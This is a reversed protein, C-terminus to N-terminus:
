ILLVVSYRNHAHTIRIRGGNISVELASFTIPLRNPNIEAIINYILKVM